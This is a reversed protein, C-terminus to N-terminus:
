RHENDVLFQTNVGWEGGRVVSAYIYILTASTTAQHLLHLQHQDLGVEVHLNICIYVVLPTEVNWGVLQRGLVNLGVVSM